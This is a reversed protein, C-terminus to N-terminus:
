EALETLNGPVVMKQSFIIYLEGKNSISDIFFTPKERGAAEHLEPPVWNANEHGGESDDSGLTDIVQVKFSYVQTLQSASEERVDTLQLRMSYLGAATGNAVIVANYEDSYHIQAGLESCNDCSFTQTM